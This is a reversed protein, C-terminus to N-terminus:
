GLAALLAEIRKRHGESVAGDLVRRASEAVRESDIPEDRERAHEIIRLCDSLDAETLRGLKLLLFLTASPVHFTATEGRHIAVVQEEWAEIRQLFFAGAQNISEVPLGMEEAIEMLTVAQDMGAEKPGAVDIDFTTRQGIGLIHLVCGGIIVWDGSLRDGALEMFRRLTKQDLITV